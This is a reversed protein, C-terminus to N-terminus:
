ILDSEIPYSLSLYIPFPFISFLRPLFFLFFSLPTGMTHDSIQLLLPLCQLLVAQPALTNSCLIHLATAQAENSCTAQGGFPKGYEVKSRVKKQGNSLEAAM